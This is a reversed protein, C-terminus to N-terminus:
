ASPPWKKGTIIQSPFTNQSIKEATLDVFGTDLLLKEIRVPRCNTLISPFHKALLFWIGNYWKSGFAMTVIVIRGGPRLVRYFERFINGFDIEPLLDVMYNNIVLDFEENGVPLDHADAQQLHFNSLRGNKMRKIAASLMASSIDIGENRGHENRKVVERFVAGTGVAVELISEGDRINALELARDVAKKETLRSWIGFVPAARAYSMEVDKASYERKLVPLSDPGGFDIAKTRESM